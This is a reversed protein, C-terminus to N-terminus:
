PEVLKRGNRSAAGTKDMFYPRYFRNLDKDVIPVNEETSQNFNLSPSPGFNNKTREATSRTSNTTSTGPPTRPVTGKSRLHKPILNEKIQILSTNVVECDIQMLTIFESSFTGNPGVSPLMLSMKPRFTKNHALAPLLLHDGSFSVVYFTDDQRRLQEFLEAYQAADKNTPSYVQIKNTDRAAIIESSATAATASLRRRRNSNKRIYNKVNKIQHFLSKITDDAFVYDSISNLNFNASAASETTNYSTPDDGIWRRLETALRISETQNVYTTIPCTPYTTATPPPPSQSSLTSNISTSSDNYINTM